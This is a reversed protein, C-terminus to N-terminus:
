RWNQDADSALIGSLLEAEKNPVLDCKSRAVSELDSLEEEMANLVQSLSNNKPLAKLRNSDLLQVNALTSLASNM